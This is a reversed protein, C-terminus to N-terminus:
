IIIRNNALETPLNIKQNTRAITGIKTVAKEILTWKNYNKNKRRTEVFSCTM